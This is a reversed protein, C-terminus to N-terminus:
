PPCAAWEMKSATYMLASMLGRDFWTTKSSVFKNCAAAITKPTIFRSSNSLLKKAYAAFTVATVDDPHPLGSALWQVQQALNAVIKELEHIRQENSADQSTGAEQMQDQM